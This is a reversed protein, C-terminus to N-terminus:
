IDGVASPEPRSSRGAPAAATVAPRSPLISNRTDLIANPRGLTNKYVRALYVAIFAITLSPYVFGCFLLAALATAGGGAAMWWALVAMIAGWIPLLYLPLRLLVTSSSLIGGVAFITMGWLNYHTEGAIRKERRYPIGRRRFGVRGISARIFPFSSSDQIIADRVERTMLSFEAMDLIVEEDAVARTIRYFLKRLAKLVAPEVRDVREGYVVDYGDEHARTFALIMEPPDECDVDIFVFLDGDANRLGFEIARQYGVNKSLSLLSVFPHERALERIVGVTNDSSANNVFTLSPVFRASLEDVVAKMRGFFLPVVSEENHVPVIIAIAPKM